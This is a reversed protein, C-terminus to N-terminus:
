KGSSPRQAAKRQRALKALEMRAKMIAMATDTKEELERKPDKKQGRYGLAYRIGTIVSAGLTPENNPNKGTPEERSEEM